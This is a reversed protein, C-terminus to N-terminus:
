RPYKTGKGQHVLTAYLNPICYAYEDGTDLRISSRPQLQLVNRGLVVPLLFRKSLPELQSVRPNFKKHMVLIFM